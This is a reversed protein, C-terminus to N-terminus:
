ASEKARPTVAFSSQMGNTNKFFRALYALNKQREEQDKLHMTSYQSSACFKMINLVLICLPM